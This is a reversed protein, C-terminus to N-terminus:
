RRVNEFRAAPGEPGSTVRGFKRCDDALNGISSCVDGNRRTAGHTGSGMLDLAGHAFDCSPLDGATDAFQL